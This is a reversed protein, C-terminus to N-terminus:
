HTQPLSLETDEVGPLAGRWLALAQDEPFCYRRELKGDERRVTVVAGGNEEPLIVLDGVQVERCHSGVECVRIIHHIKEKINMEPRILDSDGWTSSSTYLPVGWVNNFLPRLTQM